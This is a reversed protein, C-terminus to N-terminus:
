ATRADAPRPDHPRPDPPLPHRFARAANEHCVARITAAPLHGLARWLHPQCDPWTSDAHPYDTEVMVHDPALALVSDVSSPDDITCFWFNRLLVEHPGIERSAWVKRGHGSVEIQHRLRDYLAPVWGIGGESAVIKVGPFRVPIASWVWETIAALTQAQFLTAVTGSVPGLPDFPMLVGSSGVHLCIATDTEECAEVLPDWWGSHLSPLGIHTPHEPLSVATFGRAANRRIEEAGLEADALWTIGLPVIREPARGWWEEAVWDNFARTVALGLEPDSCGSYIRGCFGTIQSPFCVSAWIGALDMDRLRHEIDWAGRRMDSFRSPEQTFDDRDRRGVMANLGLQPFVQGDFVWHQSGDDALEVRPARDALRRPLRGLFLDPPEVLHDDVSIVTYRVEAPAPDPLLMPSPPEDLDVVLAAARGEVGGTGTTM